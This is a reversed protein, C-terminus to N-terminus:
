VINYTKHNKKLVKKVRYRTVVLVSYLTEHLILAGFEVFVSINRKTYRNKKGIADTYYLQVFLQSDSRYPTQTINFVKSPRTSSLSCIPFDICRSCSWPFFRHSFSSSEVSIFLNILCM